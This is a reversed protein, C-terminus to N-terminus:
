LRGYLRGRNLLQNPDFLTKMRQMLALDPGPAPWQEIQAKEEEPAWEVIRSWAKSEQAAMWRRVAKADDFGLYTVGNGARALCPGGASELVAQLDMLPHGARLVFRPMAPFEAIANWLSEEQTGSIQEAGALEEGYRGLLKENGGARVLLCHGSLSLKEAATANVVDLSTPQLVGRLVKDRAQVAEAVTPFSLAFTRTNEPIPSLKFNLSVIAALTGFSGILTKQVDLGAVNKVVMGGSQVVQGELTAYSLGIVMDRAAGYVRRRAGGSGCAIVGGITAGEACPPDLPLMQHNAALTRTLEAYPMGAEVSITLDKPEYQLIRNLRTTSIRTAAGGAPGAIRDKTGAGRLCIRQGNGAAERLAEALDAATTPSLETM